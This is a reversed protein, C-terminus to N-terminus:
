GASRRELGVRCPHRDVDGCRRRHHAVENRCLAVEPQHEAIELVLLLDRDVGLRRAEIPLREVVNDTDGKRYLARREVDRNPHGLLVVRRLQRDVVELLEEGRIPRPDEVVRLEIEVKEPALEPAHDLVRHDERGQDVGFTEVARPGQPQLGERGLDQPDLGVLLLLELRPQPLVLDPLDRLRRDIEEIGIRAGVDLVREPDVLLRHRHDLTPPERGHMPHLAFEQPHDQPHLFEPRRDVDLVKLAQPQFEFLRDVLEFLQGFRILHIDPARLLDEFVELPLSHRERVRRGIRQRLDIM